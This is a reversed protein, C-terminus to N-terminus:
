PSLLPLHVRERKYKHCHSPDCRDCCHAPSSERKKKCCNCHSHILVIVVIPPHGKERQYKCRNCCYRIIIIITHSTERKNKAVTVVAVSLLSSPPCHRERQYKHCHHHCPILNVRERQTARQVITSYVLSQTLAYLLEYNTTSAM